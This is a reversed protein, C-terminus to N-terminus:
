EDPMADAVEWERAAKRLFRVITDAKAKSDNYRAVDHRPAIAEAMLHADRRLFENPAVAYIAGIACWSRACASTAPCENGRETRAIVGQTWAGPQSLKDAAARLVDATNM